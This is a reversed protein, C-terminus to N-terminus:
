SKNPCIHKKMELSNLLVLCYSASEKIHQQHYVSSKLLQLPEPSYCYIIFKGSLSPLLHLEFVLFTSSTAATRASLPGPSEYTVKVAETEQIEPFKLEKRLFILYEYTAWTTTVTEGNYFKLIKQCNFFLKLKLRTFWSQRGIKFGSEQGEVTTLSRVLCHVLAPARVLRPCNWTATQYRICKM